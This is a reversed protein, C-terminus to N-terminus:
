GAPQGIISKLFVIFYKIPHDIAHKFNLIIEILPCKTPEDHGFSWIHCFDPRGPQPNIVGGHVVRRSWLPVHRGSRTATEM